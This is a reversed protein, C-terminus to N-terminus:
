LRPGLFFACLFNLKCNVLGFQGSLSLQERYQAEDIGALDGDAVLRSAGRGRGDLGDGVNQLAAVVVRDERDLALPVIFIGPWDTGKGPREDHLGSPKRL